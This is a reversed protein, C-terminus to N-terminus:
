EKTDFVIDRVKGAGRKGLNYTLYRPSEFEKVMQSYDSAFFDIQGYKKKPRDPITRQVRPRGDVLVGDQWNVDGKIGEYHKSFFRISTTFKPKCAIGFKVKNM